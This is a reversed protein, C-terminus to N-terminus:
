NTTLDLLTSMSDETITSKCPVKFQTQNDLIDVVGQWTLIPILGGTAVPPEFDVPLKNPLGHKAFLEKMRGPTNFPYLAYVSNASYFSPFARMLLKFM